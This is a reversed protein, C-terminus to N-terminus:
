GVFVEFPFEPGVAVGVFVAIAHAFEGDARVDGNMIDDAVNELVFLDGANVNCKAVWVGRVGARVPIRGRVNIDYTALKIYPYVVFLNHM